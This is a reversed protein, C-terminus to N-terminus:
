PLYIFWTKDTFYCQSSPPHSGRSSIITWCCLYRGTSLLLCTDLETRVVRKRFLRWWTREYCFILIINIQYAWSVNRSYDEDPVSLALLNSYDEDSVSLCYNFGPKIIGTGSSSPSIRLSKRTLLYGSHFVVISYASKRRSYIFLILVIFVYIDLKTHAVHKQFLRWWTREFSFSQFLRWWTREFSFILIIKM